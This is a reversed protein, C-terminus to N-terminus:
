SEAHVHSRYWDVTSSLGEDLPTLAEYDILRKTKRIDPHRRTPSGPTASQPVITAKRGVLRLVMAALDGIRLEPGPAGVNLVEYTCSTNHAARLMMEVADEVFCFTRRHDVSSVPFDEDDATQLARIILEPIVHDSGMRPGYVNHLRVVTWPVGAQHCLTEGVIKSLAYSSRPHAPDPLLLHASEPTPLPLRGQYASGNYVEASSAFLFRRLANQRRALELVNVTMTMNDRLVEYPHELVAAVGVLAALHYIFDYSNGLAVVTEARRLDLEIVTARPWSLQEVLNRDRRGRSFDDLLDVDEGDAILRQALHLGIGGTGGTILVRSM